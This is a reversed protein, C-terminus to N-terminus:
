GKDRGGGVSCLSYLGGEAPIHPIERNGHNTLGHSVPKVSFSGCICSKKRENILNLLKVTLM